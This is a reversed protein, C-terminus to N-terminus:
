AALHPEQDAFTVTSPLVQKRLTTLSVPKRMVPLRVKGRYAIAEIESRSIGIDALMHDDMNALEKHIQRQLAWNKYFGTMKGFLIGFEVPAGVSADRIEMRTLGIDELMRDDMDMLERQHRQAAFWDRVGRFVTGVAKLNLM